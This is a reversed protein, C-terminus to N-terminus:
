YLASWGPSISYQKQSTIITPLKRHKSTATIKNIYHIMFIEDHDNGSKMIFM